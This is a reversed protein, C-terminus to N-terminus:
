RSHHSALDELEDYDCNRANRVIGLVLIQWLDLGPRGKDKSTGPLIKAELLEFIQRSIEPTSYIWQLALLTPALQDRSNTPIQIKEIPVINLQPQIQFNSRM